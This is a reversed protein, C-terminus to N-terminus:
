EQSDRIESRITIGLVDTIERYSILLRQLHARNAPTNEMRFIIMNDNYTDFRVDICVNVGMEEKEDPIYRSIFPINLKDVDMELEKLESVHNSNCLMISRGSLTVTVEPIFRTDRQLVIILVRLRSLMLKRFQVIEPVLDGEDSEDEEADHLHIECAKNKGTLVLLVNLADLKPRMESCVDGEYKFKHSAEESLFAKILNYARKPEEMSSM